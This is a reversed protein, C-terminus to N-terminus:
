SPRARGYVQTAKDSNNLGEAGDGKSSVWSGWRGSNLLERSVNTPSNM